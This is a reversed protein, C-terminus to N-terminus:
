KVRGLILLLAGALLALAVLADVAIVWGKM